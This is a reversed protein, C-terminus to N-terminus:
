DELACYKDYNEKFTPAYPAQLYYKVPIEGTSYKGDKVTITIYKENEGEDTGPYDLRKFNMTPSSCKRAMSATLTMESVMVQTYCENTRMLEHPNRAYLQKMEGERISRFWDLGNQLVEDSKYEGCNGQMVRACGAKFEKWGIGWERKTPTYIQERYNQVQDENLPILETQKAAKWANRAAYAGTTIAGSAYNNGATLGAVYLGDLTTKLTWDYVACNSCKQCERWPEYMEGNWYPKAKKNFNSKPAMVPVQLLDKDPDFGYKGYLKYIPYNTKGENGVMLGWLVRREDPPMSPLDAYFPLKYEGSMIKEPLDGPLEGLSGSTLSGGDGIGPWTNKYLEDDSMVRGNQTYPIRKGNADIIPCGYWTNNCDGTGYMPWRMGGNACISYNSEMMTIQAGAEAMMAQGEGTNNPDWFRSSAGNYETSFAWEGQPMGSSIITSKANFVYCEGTRGSFGIAGIVRADPGTKGNETLLHEAMVYEYAEVGLRKVEEALTPKLLAGGKLRICTCNEYDYAYMLGTNDDRFASGEFEDDMDRIPLGLKELELLAAYSETAQIYRMHGMTYKGGWYPNKFYWDVLQEPSVKSKPNLCADLWHDIGTGGSGSRVIPGKDVVAVKAGRRAATIAAACGALGGGLILIDCSIRNIKEYDVPYPWKIGPYNQIDTKNTYM